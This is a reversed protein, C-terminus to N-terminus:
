RPRRWFRSHLVWSTFYLWLEIKSVFTFHDRKPNCFNLWTHKQDIWQVFRDWSSADHSSIRARELDVSWNGIRLHLLPVTSYWRQTSKNWRCSKYLLAGLFRPLVHNKPLDWRIRLIKGTQPAAVLFLGAVDAHLPLLINPWTRDQVLCGPRWKLQWNWGWNWWWPPVLEECLESDQVVKTSCTELPGALSWLRHRTHQNCIGQQFQICKFGPCYTRM